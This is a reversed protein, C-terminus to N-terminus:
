LATRQIDVQNSLFGIQDFGWGRLVGGQQDNRLDSCRWKNEINSMFKPTGASKNQYGTKKM